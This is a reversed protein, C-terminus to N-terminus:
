HQMTPLQSFIFTSHLYHKINPFATAYFHLNIYEYVMILM